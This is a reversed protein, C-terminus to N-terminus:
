NLFFSPPIVHDDTVPFALHFIADCGKSAILLDDLELLNAQLFPDLKHINKVLPTYEKKSFYSSSFCDKQLGNWSSWAFIRQIM